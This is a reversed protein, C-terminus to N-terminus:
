KQKELKEVESCWWNHVLIVSTQGPVPVYLGIIVIFLKFVQTGHEKLCHYSALLGHHLHFAWVGWFASDPLTSLVKVRSSGVWKGSHPMHFPVFYMFETTGLSPVDSLYPRVDLAADMRENKIWELFNLVPYWRLAGLLVGYLFVTEM